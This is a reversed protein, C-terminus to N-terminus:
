PHHPGNYANKLFKLSIMLNLNNETKQHFDNIESGLNKQSGHLAGYNSAVNKSGVAAKAFNPTSNGGGGDKKESVLQVWTWWTLAFINQM